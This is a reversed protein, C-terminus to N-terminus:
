EARRFLLLQRDDHVGEDAGALIDSHVHDDVRHEAHDGGAELLRLSGPLRLAAVLPALEEPPLCAGIVFFETLLMRHEEYSLPRARDPRYDALEIVM